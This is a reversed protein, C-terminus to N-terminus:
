LPWWSNALKPILQNSLGKEAAAIRAGTRYCYMKSAIKKQLRVDFTLESGSAELLQRTRRYSKVTGQGFEAVGLILLGVVFLVITILLGQPTFTWCIRITQAIAAVWIFLGLKVWFNHKLPVLWDKRDARCGQTKHKRVKLRKLGRALSKLPRFKKM